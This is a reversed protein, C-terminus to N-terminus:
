RSKKKPEPEGLVWTTVGKDLQSRFHELHKMSDFDETRYKGMMYYPEAICLTVREQKKQTKTEQLM